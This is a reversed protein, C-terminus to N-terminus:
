GNGNKSPPSPFLSFFHLPTSINFKKDDDRTESNPSVLPGFLRRRQSRSWKGAPLCVVESSLRSLSISSSFPIGALFSHVPSSRRVRRERRGETALNFELGRECRRCGLRAINSCVVSSFGSFKKHLGYETGVTSCVWGFGFCIWGFM